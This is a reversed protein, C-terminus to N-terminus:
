SYQKWTNLLREIVAQKYYFRTYIDVSPLSSVNHNNDLYRLLLRILVCLENHDYISLLIDQSPSILKFLIKVFQAADTKSTLFKANKCASGKLEDKQTAKKTATSARDKNYIIKFGSKNSWAFFPSKLFEERHLPPGDAVYSTLKEIAPFTNNINRTIENYTSTELIEVVGGDQRCFISYRMKSPIILYKLTNIADHEPSGPPLPSISAYYEASYFYPIRHHNYTTDSYFYSFLIKKCDDFIASSDGTIFTNFNIKFPQEISELITDISMGGYSEFVKRLMESFQPHREIASLFEDYIIDYISPLNSSGNFISNTIQHPFIRQSGSGDPNQICITVGALTTNKLLLRTNILDFTTASGIMSTNDTWKFICDTITTHSALMKTNYIDEEDGALKNFKVKDADSVKTWRQGIEKMIATEQMEPNAEAYIINASRGREPPKANLITDWISPITGDKAQPDDIFRLPFTAAESSLGNIKRIIKLVQRQYTHKRMESFSFASPSESEELPLHIAGVSAKRSKIYIKNPGTHQNYSDFYNDIDRFSVGQACLINKSDIQYRLLTSFIIKRLINVMVIKLDDPVYLIKNHAVPTASAIDELYFFKRKKESPIYRYKIPAFEDMMTTPRLVYMTRDQTRIEVLYAAVALLDTTILEKHQTIRELSHILIIDLYSAPAKHFFTLLAQKIYEIDLVIKDNFLSKIIEKAYIIDKDLNDKSYTHTDVSPDLSDPASTDGVVNCEYECAEFDCRMSNPIDRLPVKRPTDNSDLIELVDDMTFINGLKNLSCDIANKKLLRQIIAIQKYKASARSYMHEDILQPPDLVNLPALAVHHFITVNRENKPLHIHSNRRVVRGIAQKLANLHWWPDLIHIQRVNFISVGTEIAGSGIVVKIQEGDKNEISNFHELLAQTNVTDGTILIYKLSTRPARSDTLNQTTIITGNKSCDFRSYGAEELAAAVPNAGYPLFHTYVFCLGKSKSILNIINAIKSSHKRLNKKSFFSEGDERPIKYPRNPSPKHFIQEATHKAPSMYYDINSLQRVKMQSVPTNLGEKNYRAYQHKSMYSKYLVINKIDPTGGSLIQQGPKTRERIYTEIDDIPKITEALASRIVCNLDNPIFVNADEKGNPYLKLPYIYPNDGRAYSVYGRIKNVFLDTDNLANNTFINRMPARKDNILLLNVIWEIEDSVDYMPTASLLIFKNNVGYRAIMNLVNRINNTETDGVIPGISQVEDIIYVRNSYKEKYFNIRAAYTDKYVSARLKSYKQEAAQVRNGFARYGMIDYYQNTKSKRIKILTERKYTSPDEISYEEGTCQMNAGTKNTLDKEINYIENRWAAALADGSALIITKNNTSIRRKYNEAISIASCTKGVGVEHYLLIGNYPTSLNLYKQVFRQNESLRFGVQKTGSSEDPAKMRAEIFEKKNSLKYTFYKDLISPYYSYKERISSTTPLPPDPVDSYVAKEIEERCQDIISEYLQITFIHESSLAAIDIEYHHLVRRCFELQNTLPFGAIIDMVIVPAIKDSRTKASSAVSTAVQAEAEAVHREIETNFELLHDDM